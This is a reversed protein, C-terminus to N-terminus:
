RNLKKIMLNDLEKAADIMKSFERELDYELEEVAKSMITARLYYKRGKKVILGSEIIKNLHYILTSRALPYKLKKKLTLSTIGDNKYAAIVFEKLIAIDINNGDINNFLGLEMCFWKLLEDVKTTTPKEITNIIIKVMM